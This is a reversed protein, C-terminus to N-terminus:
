TAGSKAPPAAEPVISLGGSARLLIRYRKGPLLKIFPAEGHAARIGAKEALDPDNAYDWFHSWIEQELPSVAHGARYAAPAAGAADLAYGENPQQAEGFLRRFLCISASRQPDGEQILRDQFKVVEADIYVVDGQIRFERPPGIPTNDPGLEVFSFRTSLDKSRASGSQALVEVMAVRQDVKLLRLATDLREIQQQKAQVDKRLAAIEADRRALQSRAQDLAWKPALYMQGGFWGVVSMIALVVLGVLLGLFRNLESLLKLM